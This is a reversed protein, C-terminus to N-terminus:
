EKSGGNEEWYIDAFAESLADVTRHLEELNNDVGGLEILIARNSIDQNYVGNGELKTKLFVGRSLGPYKEEVKANLKKTYELNAQYNKNEKGVIFYLRAYTKGNITATTKDKRASDRHIDIFYKLNPNAEASAHVVENSVKYSSSYTWERKLLEKNINTKDQSAGIGKQLLSESLRSGLGVVNAREDSTVAKNSDKTNKLLPLFAEMNHSHYILVDTKEPKKAPQAPKDAVPQQLKEEAVERENMLVEAPPASEFPLTSLDTGEGAVVIETDFYVLGPLETGLFTRADTPKVNTALSFLADTVNEFTFPDSDPAFSHNASSIFYTLLENIEINRMVRELSKSSFQTYIIISFLFVAAATLLYILDKYHKVNVTVVKIM